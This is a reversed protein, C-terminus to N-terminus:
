DAHVRRPGVDSNDIPVFGLKYAPSSPKLTFDNSAGDVFQPNAVLSNADEGGGSRGAGKRQWSAFDQNGPFRVARANNYYVNRDFTSGKFDTTSAYDTFVGAGNATYVINGQLGFSETWNLSPNPAAGRIAGDDHANCLPGLSQAPAKQKVLVNNAVTIGAGDHDHFCADVTDYVTNNTIHVAESTQDTYFGWGGYCYSSVNHCLNGDVRLGDQRGGWNYFCAM